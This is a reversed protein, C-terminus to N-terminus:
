PMLMAGTERQVASSILWKNKDSVEVFQVGIECLTIGGGQDLIKTHVVQAALVLPRVLSPVDIVVETVEKEAKAAARRCCHCIYKADKVLSKMEELPVEKEVM